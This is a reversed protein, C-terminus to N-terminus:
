FCDDIARKIRVDDVNYLEFDYKFQQVDRWTARGTVYEALEDLTYLEGTSFDVLDKFDIRGSDILDMRKPGVLKQQWARDKTYFFDSYDGRHFGVQQIKRKGGAGIVKNAREVHPRYVDEIENIDLGLEKFTPTVPLLICRCRPHLPCRPHKNVPYRNGDLAACRLCTGRGTKKYGPELTASWRVSNVVKPNEKYVKEMAGVNAGQVYTRALTTIEDKTLEAYETQLRRVLQRYDEGKLAGTLLENEISEEVGWAFIDEVWMQLTRGGGEFTGGLPQGEVFSAIQAPALSVTNFGPV